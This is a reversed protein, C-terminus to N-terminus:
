MDLIEFLVLITKQFPNNNNDSVMLYRNDKIHTLGEFNDLIWGDSSDFRAILSTDCLESTKCKQLNLQRLSIVIPSLLGNYARELILIDGNPLVELATISSNKVKLSAFHWEKGTSSYLTQQNLPQNKIPYEAATLVGYKPHLTVSELAKNKHRFSKRKRLKKSTKVKNIFNGDPSFSGIRPKNEFSIILLSDGKKGNNGNQLTLGEADSFKGRLPKNNKDKLRKAAIINISRLKNKNFSIKLHYLLGEDSVAYLIQEDEDWALDSLETIPLSDKTKTRLLYSNLINIRMFRSDVNEPQISYSNAKVSSCSSLFFVAFVLTWLFLWQRKSTLPKQPSKFQTRVTHKNHTFPLYM